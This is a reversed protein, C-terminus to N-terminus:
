KSVRAPSRKGSYELMQQELDLPYSIRVDVIEGSAGTVAELRPQVFGTYSALNLRDVRAVIEDRLAAEFHVGYAEFFAKAAEYDGESKIRQIEGLLTGAGERFAAADVMVYYTKGDRKRVDIAKTHAILWRVIAQRNRMHDEEISTGERVRRLQVLANRAYAEYEAQVIETQHEAPLLGVEASKPEPIFYLAVLDARTEELASYQEKLALQPQGDLHAAVRGSGHGLVEHIATVVESALAGWKEARAVEDESWAFERRYAPPQSKDYAENINALSVSKSGREERIRQDNPLNIGIATVPGAEGTETVVDIARATVGKVDTRRYKPDWPMRAEYWPAAAALQRLGESKAHNVYCVIAEWAGKVGRADLYNEIFGNITDVPSEKDDVWAEDYAVRDADEGTEYFKVLAELARRMPAPAHPLALRLHGVIARIEKGYRGNARYVEEELAGNRKTLRSNLGYQEEFGNLDAMTVSEYLNNASAALIDRGHEPTKSTVLPDASADFFPKELRALLQDLSEGARLPFRAGSAQAARAADRLASSACGLVFKRATLNNHPGSNIWFLKAYRRIESLTAADVHDGHVLIEEIVERMDLAHRYRQDYYIDRGALAARSLHWVLIKQDLPLGDFGDAYYQVIAADNVQEILYTRTV